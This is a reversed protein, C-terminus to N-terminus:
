SMSGRFKEETRLVVVTLEINEGIFTLRMGALRRLSAVVRTISMIRAGKALAPMADHFVVFM